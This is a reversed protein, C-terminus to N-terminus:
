AKGATSTKLSPDSAIQFSELTPYGLDTANLLSELHELHNARGKAVLYGNKDILLSYPPTAIQFKAAIDVSVVYPVDNLKHRNIFERNAAENGNMSVICLNLRTRESKWVTRLAPALEHCTTCTASVFTLLTGRPGAKGLTLERGELDFASLEPIKEGIEPGSNETRASSPGFRRHILGVQRALVLVLAVLATVVLWLALYSIM